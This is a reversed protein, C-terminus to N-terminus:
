LTRPDLQVEFSATVTRSECCFRRRKCHQTSAAYMTKTRRPTINKYASAVWEHLLKCFLFRNKITRSFRIMIRRYRRARASLEIYYYYAYRYYEKRHKLEKKVERTHYICLPNRHTYLLIIIFATSECVCAHASLASTFLLGLTTPIYM